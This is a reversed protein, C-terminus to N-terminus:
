LIDKLNNIIKDSLRPFKALQEKSYTNFEKAKNDKRWSSKKLHSLHIFEGESIYILDPNRGLWIRKEGDYVCEFQFQGKWELTSKNKFIREIHKISFRPHYRYDPLVFKKKLAINDKGCTEMEKLIIEIDEKSYYEDDDLIWIWDGTSKKLQQNRIETLKRFDDVEFYDIKIKNNRSAIERIISVTNDTSKKDISVIVESVYPLVAKLCVEIFDEGNKIMTNVSINM